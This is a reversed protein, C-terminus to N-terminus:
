KRVPMSPEVEGYEYLIEHELKEKLTQGYSWLQSGNIQGGGPLQFTYKSRAEGVAMCLQALVYQYIWREKLLYKIPKELRCGIAAYYSSNDLPEPLLRLTQKDQDFRFYVEQALVKKRVKLWSKVCEWSVLDFGANGLMYSFYTQQAMAQELTFLTNVGGAEGAEFSFVDIVKRYTELDYDYDASMNFGDTKYMEPTFNCLTDMKIGVGKHYLNSNFVLYEETWGTYKTYFELAIDIYNFIADDCIEVKVTPWGIAMKARIMLDNYSKCRSNLYSGGFQMAQPDYPNNEVITRGSELVTAIPIASQPVSTNFDPYLANYNVIPIGFVEGNVKAAVYQGSYNLQSVVTPTHFVIQPINTPDQDIKYIPFAYASSNITLAIGAGYSSATNTLTCNTLDLDNSVTTVIDLDPQSVSFRYLPLGIQRNNTKGVLFLGESTVGTVITSNNIATYKM